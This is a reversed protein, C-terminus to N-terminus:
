LVRAHANDKDIQLANYIKKRKRELCPVSPNHYMAQIIKTAEKKAYKLQYARRYSQHAGHGKVGYYESIKNRLWSIHKKSASIFVLYFMFSSRWRPDYYSFFSGDGDFVGRLFDSFYEKPVDIAGLTKSKAPTLGINILFDYFDVSGFQLNYAWTETAFGGKKKGVKNQLGLCNKFTDILQLDKSTLNIHRGDKYLCGDTTILGVTYALEPRWITSIPGGRKMKYNAMLEIIFRRGGVILNIVQLDALKAM